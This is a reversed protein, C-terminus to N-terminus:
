RTGEIVIRRSEASLYTINIHLTNLPLLATIKEAWEICCIGGNQLYEDFGAAIFEELRPLRYLDFHYIKLTDEYINLLSFTPSSVQRASTKHVGEVLGQIFTTKGSGLDGTFTVVANPLLEGGLKKGYLRTDEPSSSIYEQNNKM